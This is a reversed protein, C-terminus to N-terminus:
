EEPEDEFEVDESAPEHGRETLGGELGAEPSPDPLLAEEDLEVLDLEEEPQGEGQGPTEDDLM